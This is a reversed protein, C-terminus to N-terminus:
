KVATIALKQVEEGGKQQGMRILLDKPDGFEQISIAGLELSALDSRLAEIDPQTEVRVEILTGGTFDIGLNLGRTGLLFISGVVIILSFVYAVKRFGIFDINTDSPVLKLLM